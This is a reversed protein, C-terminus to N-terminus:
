IPLYVLYNNNKIKSFPITKSLYSFLAVFLLYYVWYYLTTTFIFYPALECICLCQSLSNWRATFFSVLHVIAIKLDGHFIMKSEKCTYSALSKPLSIMGQRFMDMDESTKKYERPHNTRIHDIVKSSQTFRPRNCGDLKCQFTMDRHRSELHGKMDTVYANCFSCRLKNKVAYYHRQSKFHAQARDGSEYRENCEDCFGAPPIYTQGFLEDKKKGGKSSNTMYVKRKTPPPSPSRRGRGKVESESSSSRSSDKYQKPKKKKKPRSRSSSQTSRSRSSRSSSSASRKRDKRYKSKPYSDSCEGDEPISAEERPPSPPSPSREPEDPEYNLADENKFYDEDARSTSAELEHENGDEVAESEDQAFHDPPFETNIYKELEADSKFGDKENLRCVRNLLIPKLVPIKHKSKFHELMESEASVIFASATPPCAKCKYAKLYKAKPIITLPDWVEQGEIAHLQQLHARVEGISEFATTPGYSCLSCRFYKDLKGVKEQKVSKKTSMTTDPSIRTKHKMIQARYKDHSLRPDKPPLPSITNLIKKHKIHPTKFDEQDLSSYREPRGRRDM